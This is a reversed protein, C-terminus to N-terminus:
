NVRAHTDNRSIAPLGNLELVFQVCQNFHLSRAHLNSGLLTKSTVEVAGLNPLKGKGAGFM